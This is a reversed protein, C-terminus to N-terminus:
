SVRETACDLLTRAATIRDSAPASEDAAVSTLAEIANKVRRAAQIRISRPTSPRGGKDLPTETTLNEM